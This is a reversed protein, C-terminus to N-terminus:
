VLLFPTKKRYMATIVIYKEYVSICSKPFRGQEFAATFFGGFGCECGKGGLFGWFLGSFGVGVKQFYFTFFYNWTIIIKCRKIWIWKKIFHSWSDSSCKKVINYNCLKFLRHNWLSQYKSSSLAVHILRHCKLISFFTFVQVLLLEFINETFFLYNQKSYPVCKQAWTVCYQYTEIILYIVIFLYCPFSQAWCPSLAQPVPLPVKVWAMHPLGPSPLSLYVLCNKWYRSLLNVVGNHLM